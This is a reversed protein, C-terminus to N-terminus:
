KWRIKTAAANNLGRGEALVMVKRIHKGRLTDTYEVIKHITNKLFVKRAFEAPRMWQLMAFDVCIEYQVLCAQLKLALFVGKDNSGHHSAYELFAKNLNKEANVVARDAKELTHM